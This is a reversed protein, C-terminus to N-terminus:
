KTQIVLYNSVSWFSTPNTIVLKCQNGNPIIQYTGKPMSTLITIKSANIVLETFSSINVKTFDANAFNSINLKKRVLGRGSLVGAAKLESKTGVIFYGENIIEDQVVLAEQQLELTSILSDNAIALADLQKNLDKIKLKGSDIQKQLVALQRNKDDLQQNLFSILSSMKEFGQGKNALSDELQAIRNRQRELLKAFDRLRQRQEAMSLKKGEVGKGTSRIFNEQEAISDLSETIVGLFYSADQQQKFLSQNETTLSDLQAQLEAVRNEQKDSCSVTFIPIIVVCILMSMLITKIRM